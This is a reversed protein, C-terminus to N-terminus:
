CQPPRENESYSPSKPLDASNQSQPSAGDETRALAMDTALQRLVSLLVLSSTPRAQDSSNPFLNDLLVVLLGCIIRESGNEAQIEFRGEGFGITKIKM